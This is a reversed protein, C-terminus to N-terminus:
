GNCKKPFIGNRGSKKATYLAEDAQHMFDDISCDPTPVLTNVGVSITIGTSQGDALPIKTNETEKRLREAISSAENFDTDALLVVFEEGGWRATYDTSRKLERIFIKSVTQLAFDGQQHGYTDNYCKFNDLDIMLISIPTKYRVARNWEIWAREDFNRRNPLKTLQDTMSMQKIECIYNLMKVQNQVRLKVIAPSFPKSIYDAAGLSLGKEEDIPNNLGTVFIIPINRTKESAKLATLVSYGDMEPMLIDLLIVDPHYDETISIADQGDLVAFVTYYPNLIHTLAMINSEEDDVILVSNKKIGDL